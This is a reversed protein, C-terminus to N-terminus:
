TFLLASLRRRQARGWPDAIGQAEILQLLRKRAAGDNWEKDRAISELLADAALDREGGAILAAALELRAEHDDPDDRVRAELEASAGAPAASALDLAARARALPPAKAASEPAANLV